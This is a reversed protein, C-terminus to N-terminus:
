MVKDIEIRRDVLPVKKVANCESPRWTSRNGGLVERNIKPSGVVLLVALFIYMFEVFGDNTSESHM